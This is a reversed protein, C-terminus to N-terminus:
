STHLACPDLGEPGYISTTPGLGTCQTDDVLLRGDQVVMLFDMKLGTDWTVHAIGGDRTVEGTITQGSGNQCRCWLDVTGTKYGSQIKILEAMRAALRPTIPCDLVQCPNPSQGFWFHNAVAVVQAPSVPERTPSTTQSPTAVPSPTRAPSATATVTTTGAGAGAACGALVCMALVGLLASPNRAAM